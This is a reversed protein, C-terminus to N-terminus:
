LGRERPEIKGFDPSNRRIFQPVIEDAKFAAKMEELDSAFREVTVKLYSWCSFSSAGRAINAESARNLLEDAMSKDGLLRNVLSFCQLNNPDQTEGYKQTSKAVERVYTVPPEGELGWIAMTYNFLDPLELESPAKRTEGFVGLAERYSGRGILCLLLENRFAKHAAEENVLTPLWRNLLRVALPLTEPSTELESILDIDSDLRGIESDLRDLVPSRSILQVWDPQTERLMRIAVSLEISTAGDTNLIEKLDAVTKEKQDPYSYLRARRLLIEPQKNGTKLAQTLIAVAEESKGQRSRTEALKELVETDGAHKLRIEQLKKELDM